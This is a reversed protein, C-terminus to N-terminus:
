GVRFILVEDEEGDVVARVVLVEETIRFLRNSRV